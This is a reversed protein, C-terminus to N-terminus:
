RVQQQQQQRLSRTPHCADNLHPRHLARPPNGGGSGMHCAWPPPCHVCGKLLAALEGGHQARTEQVQGANWSCSWSMTRRPTTLATLLMCTGPSTSHATPTSLALCGRSGREQLLHHAPPRHLPEHGLLHGVWVGRHTFTYAARADM